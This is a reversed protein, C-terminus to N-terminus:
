RGNRTTPIAVDAIIEDVLAETTRTERNFITVANERRLRSAVENVLGDLHPLTAVDRSHPDSFTEIAMLWRTSSLNVAAHIHGPPVCIPEGAAHVLPELTEGLLTAAVGKLVMVQVEHARHLHAGASHGPPMLVARLSTHCGPATGRHLLHALWQNHPGRQWEAERLSAMVTTREIATHHTTTM